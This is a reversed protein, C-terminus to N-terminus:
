NYVTRNLAIESMELRALTTPALWLELCVTTVWRVVQLISFKAKKGLWTEFRCGRPNVYILSIAENGVNKLPFSGRWTIFKGESLHVGFDWILRYMGATQDTMEGDTRPMMLRPAVLSSDKLILCICPHIVTKVPRVLGLARKSMANNLELGYVTNVRIDSMNSM